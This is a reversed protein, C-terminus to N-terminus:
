TSYLSIFYKAQDVIVENWYKESVRDYLHTISAPTNQQWRMVQPALYPADTELVTKIWLDLCKQFSNRLLEAKPYTLNGCFGIWLDPLTDHAQQINEPAYWRCHLYIKLDSHNKLVQLTLDFNDRSHIVVPLQLTSALLCQKEFLEIQLKQIKENRDRHADIGIEWIAVIHDKNTHYLEEIKKIEIDIQKSSGITHNYWIEWPHIWITALVKCWTKHNKAIELAKINREHGVWINVLWVGWDDVFQQLHAERDPYLQDSNLHTHFDYIAAM